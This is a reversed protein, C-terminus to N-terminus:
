NPHWTTQPCNEKPVHLLKSGSSLRTELILTLPVADSGLLGFGNLLKDLSVPTHLVLCDVKGGGGELCVQNEMTAIDLEHMLTNSWVKTIATFDRVTEWM